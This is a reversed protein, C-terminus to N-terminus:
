VIRCKFVRVVRTWGGKWEYKKNNVFDFVEFEPYKSFHNMFFDLRNTKYDNIYPSVCVFYNLGKFSIDILNLIKELSFSVDLINSFLHFNTIGVHSIFDSSELLDLTKNITHIQINEYYKFVNASARKLAPQSPEILTLYKLDKDAKQSNLFDFYSISAMAQGCGWDIINLEDALHGQPLKKFASLLKEYHMNGYSYIYGCLQQEDELIAEGRNLSEYVGTINSKNYFDVSLQKISPFNSNTYSLLHVYETDKEVLFDISFPPLVVIKSLYVDAVKRIEESSKQYDKIQVDLIDYIIEKNLFTYNKVKVKLRDRLELIKDEYFHGFDLIIRTYYNVFTEIVVDENEENEVAESLLQFFADFRDLHNQFRSVNVLYLEAAKLRAGYNFNSDKLIDFLLKFQVALGLRECVNLLLTLFSLNTLNNKDISRLVLINLSIYNKLQSKILILESYKQLEFYDSVKSFNISLYDKLTDPSASLRQLDLFFRM